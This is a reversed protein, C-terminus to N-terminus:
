QMLATVPGQMAAEPQELEASSGGHQPEQALRSSGLILLLTTSLSPHSTTSCSRARSRQREQKEGTGSTRWPSSLQQSPQLQLEQLLRQLLWM